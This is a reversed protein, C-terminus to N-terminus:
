HAGTPPLPFLNLITCAQLCFLDKKQSTTIASPAAWKPDVGSGDAYSQFTTIIQGAGFIEALRLKSFRRFSM